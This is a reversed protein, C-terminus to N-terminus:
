GPDDDASRRRDAVSLALHYAFGALWGCPVTVLLGFFAIYLGFQLGQGVSAATFGSDWVLAARLLSVVAFLPAAILGVITGDVFTSVHWGHVKRISVYAAAIAGVALVIWGSALGGRAPFVSLAAYGLVAGIAAALLFRLAWPLTTTFAGHDGPLGSESDSTPSEGTV